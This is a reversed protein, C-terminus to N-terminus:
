DALEATLYNTFASCLELIYIAEALSIEETENPLNGHRIADSLYGYLKSMSESYANNITLLHDDKIIKILQGLTKNSPDKQSDKAQVFVKAASEAGSIAEIAIQNTNRKKRKALEKVAKKFHGSGISTKLATNITNLDTSSTVPVLLSKVFRFGAVNPELVDSNIHKCLTEIRTTNAKLNMICFELFDYKSFWSLSRYRDNLYSTFVSSSFDSAPRHFFQTWTKRFNNEQVANGGYGPENDVSLGLDSFYENWIFNFIDSSLTDSMSDIQVPQPPQYGMRISFNKQPTSM